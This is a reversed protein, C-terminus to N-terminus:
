AATSKGDITQFMVQDRGAEKARYLALDARRLADSYGDDADMFTGVGFSASVQFPVIMGENQNAILKPLTKMAIRLRNSITEVAQRDVVDLIIVFEEGGWRGIVDSGRLHPSLAANVAALVSDGAPHGYTDNVNKFHDLDMLVVGVGHGTRQFRKWLRDLVDNLGARNLTGTLRDHVAAFALQREVHRRLRDAREQILGSYLATGIMSCAIVSLVIAEVPYSRDPVGYGRYLVLGGLWPVVFGLIVMMRTRSGNEDSTLPLRAVPYHAYITLVALTAPVLAILTTLAMHGDLYHVDYTHGMVSFIILGTALIALAIGVRGAKRRILLSSFLVALVVSTDQGMRSDATAALPLFLDHVFDPQVLNLLTMCLAITGIAYRWAPTPQRLRMHLLGVSMMVILLATMPHTGLAAGGPGLTVTLDLVNVILGLIGAALSVLALPIRLRHASRVLRYRGHQARSIHTTGDM